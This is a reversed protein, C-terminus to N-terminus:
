PWCRCVTVNVGAYADRQRPAAAAAEAGRIRGQARGTNPSGNIASPEWSRLAIAEGGPHSSPASPPPSAWCSSSGRPM